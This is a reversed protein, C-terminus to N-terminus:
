LAGIRAHQQQLDALAAQNRTLKDREKQVVAAPAKATFQPNDLKRESRHIDQSLRDIDKQLRTLEADKDILDALPILIKMDGVLTM